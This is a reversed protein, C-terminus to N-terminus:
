CALRYFLCELLVQLWEILFLSDLLLLCLVGFGGLGELWLWLFGVLCFVELFVTVFFIFGLSFKKGFNGGASM